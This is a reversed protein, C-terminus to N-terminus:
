RVFRGDRGIITLEVYRSASQGPEAFRLDMGGLDLRRLRWLADMLSTRGAGRGAAKLAEVFVRANIYGELATHSAPLDTGLAKWAAHFDRVIPTVTQTPLPVVQSVAVGVGDPGLGQVTAAAGMVSLAYVRVGKRHAKAAKIFALAPKGALGVLVAEPEKAMLQSAAAEADSADNKVSAVGLAKFKHAELSVAAADAVEKGFSNAQHAVVIRRTGITALHEIIRGVEDAYSARVHVVSRPNGRRVSLAGSYPAFVPVGAKEAKPLLSEVMPTGFCGFLALLSRDALLEDALPESRKLDYADDKAILELPKGDVGGKANVAEFCARAGHHIARGLDALPGSLDITQGLRWSPAAEQAQVARALWPLTLACALATRRPLGKATTVPPRDFAIPPLM